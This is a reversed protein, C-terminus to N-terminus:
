VSARSVKSRTRSTSSTRRRSSPSRATDEAAIPDYQDLPQLRGHIRAIPPSPVKLHLDSGEHRVVYSLAEHLDFM